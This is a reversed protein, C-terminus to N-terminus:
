EISWISNGHSANEQRAKKYFCSVSLKKRMSNNELSKWLLLYDFYIKEQKVERRKDISSDGGIGCGKISQHARVM